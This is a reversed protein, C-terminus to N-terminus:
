RDVVPRYGSALIERLDDATFRVGVGEGLVRHPVKGERIRRYITAKSLRLISAAEEPIFVLLSDPVQDRLPHDAIDTIVQEEMEGAPTDM